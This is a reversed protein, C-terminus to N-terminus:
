GLDMFLKDISCHKTAGSVIRAAEAHIAELQKNSKTSCNNWVTDSYEILPCIYSIYIKELSKRSIRFKFARIFDMWINNVLKTWTCSSSFTLGLHKHSTIEDISTDNMFLSPNEVPNPNRTFTMSLIKNANIICALRKGLTYTNLARAAEESLDVITFLSTDDAM